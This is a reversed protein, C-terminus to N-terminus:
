RRRGKKKAKAPKKAKKAATPRVADRASGLDNFAILPHADVPYRGKVVVTIGGKTLRTDPAQWVSVEHDYAPAWAFTIQTPPTETLAHYIASRVQEHFIKPVDKMYSKWARRLVKDDTLFDIELPKDPAFRDAMKAFEGINDPQFKENLKTFISQLAPM